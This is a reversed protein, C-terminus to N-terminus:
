PAQSNKATVDIGKAACVTDHRGRRDVSFFIGFAGADNVIGLHRIVAGRHRRM